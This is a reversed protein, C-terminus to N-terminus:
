IESDIFIKDIKSTLKPNSRPFCSLVCIKPCMIRVFQSMYKSKELM